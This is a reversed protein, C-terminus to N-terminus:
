DQSGAPKLAVLVVDVVGGLNRASHSSGMEELEVDGRKWRNIATRGNATDEIEGGSLHIVITDSAHTHVGERAGVEMRARIVSVRDNEFMPKFSMGTFTAEGPKSASPPPPSRRKERPQVVVVDGRMDFSRPPAADDDLWVAHGSEPGSEVAVVVGPGHEIRALSNAATRYVRVYANDIVASTFTNVGSQAASSVSFSAGVILSVILASRM